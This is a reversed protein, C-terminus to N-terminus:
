ITTIVQQSIYKGDLNQGSDVLDKACIEFIDNFSLNPYGIEEIRYKIPRFFYVEELNPPDSRLFLIEVNIAAIRMESPVFRNYYLSENFTKLSRLYIEDVLYVDEFTREKTGNKKKQLPTCVHTENLCFIMNVEHSEMNVKFTDLCSSFTHFIKSEIPLKEKELLYNSARAKGDALEDAFRLIAALLRFRITHESIDLREKQSGILDVKGSHARAIDFIIKKELMSIQDLKDKIITSTDVAHTERNANVIHGADHIQIAILLIFAEYPSLENSDQLNSLLFSAKEIVMAVHKESHDNLYIEPDERSMVSKIEPHIERDLFSKFTKYCSVYNIGRSFTEEQNYFWDQLTGQGFNM